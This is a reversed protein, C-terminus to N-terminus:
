RNTLNNKSKKLFIIDQVKNEPFRKNGGPNM